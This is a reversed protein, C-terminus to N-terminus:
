KILFKDRWTSDGSMDVWPWSDRAKNIDPTDLVGYSIDRHYYLYWLAQEWYDENDSFEDSEYIWYWLFEMGFLSLWVYPAGEYRPTDYKDKWSVDCSRFHFIAPNRVYIFPHYINKGWIFKMKLPKFVGKLLRMTKFPNQCSFHILERMLM